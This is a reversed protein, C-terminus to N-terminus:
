QVQRIVRLLWRIAYYLGFAALLIIFHAVMAELPFVAGVSHGFPGWEVRDEFKFPTQPLLVTLAFAVIYLVTVLGNLLEVLM